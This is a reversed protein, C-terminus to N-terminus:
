PIPLKFDYERPEDDKGVVIVTASAADIVGPYFLRPLAPDRQRGQLREKKTRNIILLYRGPELRSFRFRGDVNTLMFPWVSKNEAFIEEYTADALVLSVPVRILTEGNKDVVRGTVQGTPEAYFDLPLCDRGTLTITKTDNTLHAPLEVHIRYTGAPLSKLEYKGEADTVVEDRYNNGELIVKIGQLYKPESENESTKIHYSFQMIKGFVRSGDKATALGRIYQLDETAEALPRTRTNGIRVQLENDNRHAYVLYRTGEEFIYGCSQSDFVIGTGEVGKFTEEITFYATTKVYPGLGPTDDRVNVVRNAVAIFVADAQWYEQCPPGIGRGPCSALTATALSFLTMLSVFCLAVRQRAKM